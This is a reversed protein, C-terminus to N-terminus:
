GNAFQIIIVLYFTKSGSLPNKDQQSIHRIDLKIKDTKCMELDFIKKALYVFYAKFHYLLAHWLKM